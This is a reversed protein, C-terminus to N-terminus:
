DDKQHERLEAILAEVDSELEDLSGNNWLVRHAAEIRTDPESQAALRRRAAEPELGRAIARQLRLEPDAEVTVVLDFDPAFGAEVLLTAELVAVGDTEGTLESFRERVLPHIAEELRRRATPEAFVERALRAHDVSGDAALHEAGFLEAVARAGDGGPRYLDAVLRDADIVRFGAEGLWGAVTSKGAALGGTLGVRYPSM